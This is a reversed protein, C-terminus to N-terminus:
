IVSHIFSISQKEIAINKIGVYHSIVSSCKNSPSKKNFFNISVKNNTKNKM